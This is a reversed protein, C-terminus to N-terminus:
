HCDASKAQLGTGLFMCIVRTFLGVERHEVAVDRFISPLADQTEWIEYSVKHFPVRANRLLWVLTKSFDRAGHLFDLPIEGFTM